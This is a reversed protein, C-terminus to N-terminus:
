KEAPQSLNTGKLLNIRIPCVAKYPGGIRFHFKSSPSELTWQLAQLLVLLLNVEQIFIRQNIEKFCLIGRNLVYFQIFFGDM